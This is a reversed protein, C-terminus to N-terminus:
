GTSTTAKFVRAFLGRPRLLKERYAAVEREEAPTGEEQQELDRILRDRERAAAAEKGQDAKEVQPM